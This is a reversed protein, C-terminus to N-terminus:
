SSCMTLSGVFESIRPLWWLLSSVLLGVLEANNRRYIVIIGTTITGVCIIIIIVM